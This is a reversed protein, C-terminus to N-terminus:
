TRRRRRRPQRDPAFQAASTGLRPRQRARQARRVEAMVGDLVQSPTSGYKGLAALLEAHAGPRGQRAAWWAEFEPDLEALYRAALNLKAADFIGLSM